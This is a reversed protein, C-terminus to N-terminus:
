RRAESAPLRADAATCRARYVAFQAPPGAKLVAAGSRIFRAGAEADGQTFLAEGLLCHAVALIPSGAALAPTLEDVAREAVRRAAAADGAQLQLLAMSLFPYTRRPANPPLIEEYLRRATSLHLLAQPTDGTSALSAGLNQHLGAMEIPDGKAASDATSGRLAILRRLESQEGARDGAKGLALALNNRASLVGSYTPGYDRELLAVVRRLSVVAAQPQGLRRQLNGLSTLPGALRAHDPGFAAETRQVAEEILGKAEKLQALQGHANGAGFLAEILPSPDSGAQGRLAAAAAQFHDLAEQPASDGLAAFGAKLLVPAAQVTHDPLLPRVLALAEALHSRAAALQGAERQVASLEALTEAMALTRAPGADPSQRQQIALVEEWMAQARDLRGGQGNLRALLGMVNAQVEPEEQLQPRLRAAAADLSNWITVERGGLSARDLPDAQTFLNSLLSYARTARRAQTEAADRQQALAQTYFQLSVAWGLVLLLSLVAAAASAPRRRTWRRLATWATDPRAAIAGGRLHQRLDSALADASAYRRAPEPQLATQLITDLDGELQGPRLPETPRPQRTGRLRLRLTTSARPAAAEGVRARQGCLVEFLLLGLQYVDTATTIDGGRLQEPAAYEPTLVAHGTLTLPPPDAADSGSRGAPGPGQLLKAIGFDLLRVRGQGDVLVNSPKIDRHVVLQTHAHHVADAVQLLLDLRAQLGLGLRRCHSVIDEGDVFEAALYPQGDATAGGDILRAIHPHELAALIHRETRFRAATEGDALWRRLLKVAAQQQFGGDERQALWVVAAGGQGLRRILRWHGIQAGALPEAEAAEPAGDAELDQWLAATPGALAPAPGDATPEFWVRSDREADLLRQLAAKLDPRGACARDAYAQREAVPLDLAQQLLADAQRDPPPTLPGAGAPTM